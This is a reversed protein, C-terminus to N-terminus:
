LPVIQGPAPFEMEASGTDRLQDRMFAYMEKANGSPFGIMLDVAGITSIDTSASADAPVADTVSDDGRPLVPGGM